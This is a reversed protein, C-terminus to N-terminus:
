FKAKHDKISYFDNITKELRTIKQKIDGEHNSTDIM